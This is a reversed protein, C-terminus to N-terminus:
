FNYLSSLSIKLKRFKNLDTVQKVLYIDSLVGIQFTSSNKFPKVYVGSSIIFNQTKKTDFNSTKEISNDYGYFWDSKVEEEFDIVKSVSLFTSVMGFDKLVGLGIILEKDNLRCKVSSVTGSDIDLPWKLNRINYDYSNRNYGLLAYYKFLRSKIPIGIQNKLSFGLNSGVQGTFGFNSGESSITSITTLNVELSFSFINEQCFLENSLIIMLIVCVHRM